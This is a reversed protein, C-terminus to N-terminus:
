RSQLPREGNTLSGTGVTTGAAAAPAPSPLPTATQAPARQYQQVPAGSAGNSGSASSGSSQMVNPASVVMRPSALQTATPNVAQPSAQSQPVAAPNTQQVPASPVVTAPQAPMPAPQQFAAPPMTQSRATPQSPPPTYTPTTSPRTAVPAASAIGPLGKASEPLEVRKTAGGDSLLVYDRQVEKVSVGPTLEMGVRVAQAPKGDASLIAVSDHPGAMIVGRLQYNSAVATKGPRGGFLAAAADPSIEVQEARPPAAVPRLPPKFLQLAWYAISACLALFLLFSTLLPLRKM